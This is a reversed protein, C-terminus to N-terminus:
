TDTAAPVPLPAHDAVGRSVILAATLHGTANATTRFLDPIADVGLLIGIGELPLGVSALVPAMAIISGGPIGPISFSTVIATVVITALQSAGISVGYLRAIFVAGTTLGLAAGVRFVSAALPLFFGTIEEPLHLRTRASDILAPLAALSSRSSFAVAQAPAVAKAFERLSIGGGWAGAPYLVLLMFLVAVLSVLGVYTALAGVASLGLRAVLPLALAFVGIPAIVLLWRVLVLMSEAIARFFTVVRVRSAEPVSILALGLLLAFIILPLMAGDVAARVANPPVLSTVWETPSQVAARPALGGVLSETHSRMAGVASADPQVRMLIPTSVFAGMLGSALLLLLFVIVGRGGLRAVAVGSQSTAIGVILSSVVLPIVTMRIANVFITGVPEVVSVVRVAIGVDVTSLLLGIGIGLALAILVRTTLSM